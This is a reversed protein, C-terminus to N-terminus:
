RGEQRYFVVPHAPGPPSPTLAPSPPALAARALGLASPSKRRAGAGEAEGEAVGEARGPVVLFGSPEGPGPRGLIHSPPVRNNAASTQM